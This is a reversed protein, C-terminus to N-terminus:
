SLRNKKKESKGRNNEIAIESGIKQELIVKRENVPIVHNLRRSNRRSVRKRKVLKFLIKSSYFKVKTWILLHLKNKKVTQTKNSRKIQKKKCVPTRLNFKRTLDRIQIKGM